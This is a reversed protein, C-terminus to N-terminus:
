TIQSLGSLGLVRTGDTVVAVYNGRNTYEFVKEPHEKIEKCPAAVGPTYWIAFDSPSRIACKPMIQAKREYFKHYAPALKSPRKAKELLEEVTLKKTM